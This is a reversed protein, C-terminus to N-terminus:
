PPEVRVRMFGPHGVKVCSTGQWAHGKLIALLLPQCHIRPPSCFCAFVESLIRRVQISGALGEGVSFLGPRNEARLAPRDRKRTPQLTTNHKTSKYLKAQAVAERVLPGPMAKCHLNRTPCVVASRTHACTGNQNPCVHRTCAAVCTWDPRMFACLTSMFQKGIAWRHEEPWAPTLPGM